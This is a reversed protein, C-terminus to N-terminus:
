SAEKRRIVILCIVCTASACLFHVIVTSLAIGAAGLHRMLLWNLSANLVLASFSIMLMFRSAQLSVAVRAAVTGLIYFPIQFAAFRLVEAVRQTDQPGFAGREFLTSVIWPAMFCLILTMPLAASVIIGASAFLRKRLGAWDRRAVLEAFHPFLVDSAPGATVALVIACVKDSYSLVAVSGATLWAAMTQDVVVASGFAVGGLLFPLANRLVTRLGPEWHRLCCRWWRASRPLRRALAILLVAVHAVAGWVTGTVLTWANVQDGAILMAIVIGLPVLMPASAALLFTKGARLWASLHHALGFCLLFPLLSHLLKVSLAQKAPDFGKTAWAVIWPAGLSLALGCVLLAAFHWAACQVGLRDARRQGRRERLEAYAPVFSEPLGGALVTCAFSFFGFVLMFADLEDATGLKAAVVADKAFSVIKGVMTLMAVLLFGSVMASGAGRALLSRLTAPLAIRIAPM